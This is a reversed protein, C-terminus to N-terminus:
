NISVLEVDFLLTAKAPIVPPYGKNGYGYDSHIILQAKEGLSMSLVGLDWGKIVMGEGVNFELPGRSYSCDFQDGSEFTGRYHVSVKDGSNPVTGDGEKFIKKIVKGDSTVQSESIVEYQEAFSTMKLRFEFKFNQIEFHM